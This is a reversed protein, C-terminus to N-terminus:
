SLARGPPSALRPWAVGLGAEGGERAVATSGDAEHGYYVLEVWFDPGAAVAPYIAADLEVTPYIREDCAVRDDQVETGAASLVHRVIGHWISPTEAGQFALHGFHDSRIDIGNHQGIGADVPRHDYLLVPEYGKGVVGDVHDDAVKAEFM